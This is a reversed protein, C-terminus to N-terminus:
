PFTLEIKTLKALLLTLTDLTQIHSSYSEIALRMLRRSRQSCALTVRRSMYNRTDPPLSNLKFPSKFGNPIVKSRLCRSLFSIVLFALKPYFLTM